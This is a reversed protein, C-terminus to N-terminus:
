ELTSQGVGSTLLIQWVTLMIELNNESRSVGNILRIEIRLAALKSVFKSLFNASSGRNQRCPTESMRFLRRSQKLDKRSTM